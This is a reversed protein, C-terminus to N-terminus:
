INRQCLQAAMEVLAAAYSLRPSWGLEDRIRRSDFRNDFAILNLGELTPLGADEPGMLAAPDENAWAAAWVPELPYAPPPPAGILAAMDDNFRRWSVGDEDCITYTRGIAAPHTAALLIADALNEVYVLGARNRAGDGIVAGGTARILDLYRDGWASAGGLGYVNGPRVITVPLGSAAAVELAITEQGQKARGYAGMWAGHGDEDSCVQTQIKDGYVAISSAVVLRAKNAAAAACVSRTGEAIIQWQRDYAGPLGVVSALHIILDARAAADELGVGSALDGYHLTARGRWGPPEAEGPLSFSRVRWGGDLLRRVVRRGIFGPGGTVLAQGPSAM